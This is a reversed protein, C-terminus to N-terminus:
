QITQSDLKTDPATRDVLVPCKSESSNGLADSIRFTIDFKGDEPFKIMGGNEIRAFNSENLKYELLAGGPVGQVLFGAAPVLRPEAGAVCFIPMAPAKSKIRYDFMGEVKNGNKDAAKYQIVGDPGIDKLVIAGSYAKWDAAGLPKWELSALGTGTDRAAISLTAKESVSGDPLRASGEVATKVEPSTSDIMINKFKPASKNGARDVAYYAINYMGDERLRLEGGYLRMDKGNVRAWTDSIGSGSDAAGFKLVLTKGGALSINEVPQRDATGEGGETGPQKEGEGAKTVPNLTADSEAIQRGASWASTKGDKLVSRVRFFYVGSELSIQTENKAAKATTATAKFDKDKAVEVEYSAANADADWTLKYSKSQAFAAAWAVTILTTLFIITHKNM